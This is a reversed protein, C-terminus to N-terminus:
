DRTLKGEVSRKVLVTLLYLIATSGWEALPRDLNKLLMTIMIKDDLDANHASLTLTGPDGPDEDEKLVRVSLSDLVDKVVRPSAQNRTVENLLLREAGRRGFRLALYESILQVYATYNGDNFAYDTDEQMSIASAARKSQTDSHTKIGDLTTDITEALEKIVAELVDM